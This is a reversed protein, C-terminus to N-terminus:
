RAFIAIALAGVITLFLIFGLDASTLHPPRSAAWDRSFREPADDLRRMISFYPLAINSLPDGFVIRAMIFAQRDDGEGSWWPWSTLEVERGNLLLVVAGPGYGRRIADLKLDQPTEIM